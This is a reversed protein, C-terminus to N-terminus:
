STMAGSTTPIDHVYGSVHDMMCGSGGENVLMGNIIRYGYRGYQMALAIIRGTLM